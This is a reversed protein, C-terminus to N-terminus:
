PKNRTPRMAITAALFAAVILFFLVFEQLNLTFNDWRSMPSFM